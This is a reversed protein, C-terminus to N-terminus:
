RRAATGARRLAVHVVVASGAYLTVVLSMAGPSATPLATATLSALASVLMQTFGAFASGTGRQDPRVANLMLLSANAMLLGISSANLAMGLLVLVLLGGNLAAGLCLTVLGAVGIVIAAGLLREPSVRGALRASTATTAVFVVALAGHVAGYGVPSLGFTDIFVFPATTVFAFFAGLAFANVLQYRMFQPNRLVAAYARAVRRVRLADPRPIGTEPLARIALLALASLGVLAAFPARWGLGDALLAGVLPGLVTGLVTGLTMIAIWRQAGVDDFMERLIVAGLVTGAGAALGQGVRGLILAEVSPALWCLTSAACFVALGWRLVRARGFRDALPGLVLTSAAYAALNLALTLQVLSPDAALETAIRPLTAVYLDTSLVFVALAAILVTAGLTAGPVTATGAQTPDGSTAATGPPGPADPGVDTM